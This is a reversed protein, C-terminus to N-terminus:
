VGPNGTDRMRKLAEIAKDLTSVDVTDHYGMGGDYGVLKGAVQHPINLWQGLGYHDPDGGRLSPRGSNTVFGFEEWEPSVALWGGLDAAVGHEILKDETTIADPWPQDATREQWEGTLYRGGRAKVREMVTIWIGLRDHNLFAPPNALYMDVYRREAESEFSYPMAKIQERTRCYLEALEDTIYGWEALKTAVSAPSRGALYAVRELQFPNHTFIEVLNAREDDHWRKYHNEQHDRM